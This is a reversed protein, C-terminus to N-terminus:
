SRELWEACEPSLERGVAAQYLELDDDTLITKWRGNTGRYFFTQAGGQFSDEMGPWISEANRKVTAFTVSDMIAPLAETPVDIELFRAVRLVEGQLDNLLDSFHVFLINPVHRFDWWTQVHRMNSWFPYGETEWDFWGTSIWDRWLERANTPCEPLPNGERPERNLREYSGPTYNSYHNWLSMFVDRADRGVVVYKIEHFFPLGDLPLHTKICRRHIQAELPGVVDDIPRVRMDLWPSVEHISTTPGGGSLLAQVILQMWTTGSKYPTAVVIDDDRPTFREWRTSDLHHNQYIRTVRPTNNTM